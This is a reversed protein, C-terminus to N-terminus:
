NEQKEKSLPHPPQPALRNMFQSDQGHALLPINEAIKELLPTLWSADERSFNGLVHSHVLEKIGPHGIGLRLRRYQAGCHADISKIGNHGGSGGGKKIRVRAPPLDLEDHIVVLSELSLKYFRLIEGVAQGSLNMFTQPKVLLIKHGDVSNEAVLAQFRSRWSPFNHRVHVLDVAMFGINHRHTQYAAGPNGLGVLLMM